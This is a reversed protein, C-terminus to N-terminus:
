FQYSDFSIICAFFTIVKNDRSKDLNLIEVTFNKKINVYTLSIFQCIQLHYLM